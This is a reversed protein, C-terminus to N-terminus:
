PLQIKGGGRPGPGGLGSGGLGGGGMGPPVRDPIVISSAAERRLDQLQRMTREVGVEAAAAFKEAAEGLSTAEIEFAIPLAGVSTVLQAEGLYLVPRSPDPDGDRTVPTLVRITGMRRDTYVDERYLSAPDMKLQASEADISM